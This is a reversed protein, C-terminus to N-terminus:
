CGVNPATERDVTNACWADGLPMLGYKVLGPFSTLLIERHIMNRIYNQFNQKATAWGSAKRPLRPFWSVLFM